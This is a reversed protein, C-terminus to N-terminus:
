LGAASVVPLGQICAHERVGLMSAQARARVYQMCISPLGFAAVHSHAVTEWALSNTRDHVAHSLIETYRSAHMCPTNRPKASVLVGRMALRAALRSFMAIAGSNMKTAPHPTLPAAAACPSACTHIWVCECRHACDCLSFAHGHGTCNGTVWHSSRDCGALNICIYTCVSTTANHATNEPGEM